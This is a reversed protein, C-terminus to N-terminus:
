LWVLDGSIFSLREIKLGMIIIVETTAFLVNQKVKKMKM